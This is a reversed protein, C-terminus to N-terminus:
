AIQLRSKLESDSPEVLYTGDPFAITPVSRNGRNVEMVKKAAEEDEDIDIWQFPINNKEFIGRARKSSWCWNTGYIIIIDSM